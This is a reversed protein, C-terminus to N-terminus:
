AEGNGEFLPIAGASLPGTKNKPKLRGHKRRMALAQDRYLNLGPAENELKCSEHVWHDWSRGAQKGRRTHFDLAYDPIERRSDESDIQHSVYCALDDAVRSKSARCMAFIAHALVIREAPKSTRKKIRKYQEGLAYILVAISNDAPGIDESAIISLRSWLFDDFKSGLELAWYLAAEENGRRIEKQLASAVEFFDYGRATVLHYGM